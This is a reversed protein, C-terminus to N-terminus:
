VAVGAQIEVSSHDPFRVVVRCAIPAVNADAHHFEKRTVQAACGEPPSAFAISMSYTPPNTFQYGAGSTVILTCPSPTDIEGIVHLTPKAEPGPMANIWARVNNATDAISM